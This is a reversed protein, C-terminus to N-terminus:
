FTRKSRRLREEHSIEGKGTGEPTKPIGKPKNEGLKEANDALWSVRELLPMSSVVSQFIEPVTKMQSELFTTLVKEFEALKKNAESLEPELKEVKGQFEEALEKFKEQEALEDTRKKEQEKKAKSREAEVKDLEAQLRKKEENVEKFRDYPIPDLKQDGDNNENKEQLSLEKPKGKEGKEDEKKGDGEQNKEEM